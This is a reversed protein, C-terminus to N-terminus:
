EITNVPELICIIEEERMQAIEEMTYGAVEALVEDSHEGLEPAIGVRGPTKHLKFPLGVVRIQGEKPHDVEVIYENALAQPHMAVEEFTHIPAAIGGAEEFLRIWEDRDKTRIRKDIAALVEEIYADVKDPDNRRKDDIFRELDMVKFGAIQMSHRIMLLLIPKGDKAFHSSTITVEGALRGIRARPISKDPELHSHTLHKQFTWGVLDMTSGLLSADVQQGEGTRERHFLAVMVGFAMMFGGTQDSISCGLNTPPIGEPLWITSLIGSMAQGVGDFGPKAAMPGKLGFASGTLYIIGPNIRSLTEYSFGLRDAVGPRFNQAFIDAKKVLRYVIEKGKESKIDITISKKNRNNAQFFFPGMSRGPEGIGCPEVKIVEAGMDALQQTAVPGQQYQTLDIVRIGELPFSM